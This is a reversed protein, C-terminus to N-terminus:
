ILFVLTGDVVLEIPSCYRLSLQIRPQWPSYSVRASGSASLYAVSILEWILLHFFLSCMESLCDFFLGLFEWFYKEIKTCFKILNISYCLKYFVVNHPYYYTDFLVSLNSM